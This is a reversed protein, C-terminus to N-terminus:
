MAGEKLSNKGFPKCAVAMEKMGLVTSLRVKREM